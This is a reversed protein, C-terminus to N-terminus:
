RGMTGACVGRRHQIKRHYFNAREGAEAMGIVTPKIGAV